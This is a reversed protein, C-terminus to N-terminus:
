CQKPSSQSFTGYLEGDRESIRTYPEGNDGSQVNPAGVVGGTGFESYSGEEDMDLDYISMFLGMQRSTLFNQSILNPYIIAYRRCDNGMPLILRENYGNLPRDQTGFTAEVVGYGNADHLFEDVMFLIIEGNADSYAAHSNTARDGFYSERPDTEGPDPIPLSTVPDTSSNYTELPLTWNLNQGYSILAVVIAAITLLKNKM